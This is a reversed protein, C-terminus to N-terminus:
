TTTNPQDNTAHAARAMMPQPLMKTHAHLEDIDGAPSRLTSKLRSLRAATRNSPRGQKGHM